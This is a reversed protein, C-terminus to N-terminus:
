SSPATQGTTQRAQWLSGQHSFLEGENGVADQSWVKVMPLKGASSLARQELEALRSEIKKTLAARARTIEEEVEADRALREDAIIQALAGPPGCQVQTARPASVTTEGGGLRGAGADARM